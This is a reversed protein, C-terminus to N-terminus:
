DKGSGISRGRQIMRRGFRKRIQDTLHDVSEAPDERHPDPEIMDFLSAQLDPGDAFGSTGVGLLRVRFPRSQLEGAVLSRVVNWVVATRNTAGELTHSRTITQFDAFRIKVVVTRGELEANRLRYCVSETLYMATSEIVSYDTVDRAFTTEQSISKVDSDPTVKRKDIGRALDRIRGSDQGFLNEVRNPDANRLDEITRIGSSRFRATSVKGIGWLRDIPQPDLFAQVGDRRIVVFGDPKGHDSALKALFKNPAVGVSAILELESRIDSKIRCGITESDGYLRESGSCDLFAEDLSLPEIVPTYRYFIDRIQGSIELYFDHRPPLIIVEPCKRVASATPMASHIGFKRAPYNAASVVGRGEPRGGVILPKGRIDPNEREEVSAYFADMDVHIIM